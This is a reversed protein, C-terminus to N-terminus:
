SLIKESPGIQDEDKLDDFARGHESFEMSNRSESNQKFITVQLKYTPFNLGIKM